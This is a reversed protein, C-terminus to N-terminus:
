RVEDLALARALDASAIKLDIRKNTVAFGARLLALQAGLLDLNGASGAAVRAETVRLNEEAQGVMGEVLTLDARAREFNLICTQVDLVVSNKQKDADAKLKGLTHSQSQTEALTSPLGGLDYSVIVGLSWTGTFLWPDTQFAARQNPDALTYNGTITVTPYLGAQALRASHEGTELSLQSARTEPRRRLAQAILNKEDPNEGFSPEVAEEPGTSLTYLGSTDTSDATLNLSGNNKGMLTILTLYARKQMAVAGGLDIEAQKVRMDATLLDARTATGLTVQKNVQDRNAHLLELNKKLTNVNAAARVCEWYARRVEFILSRKVMELALQKGDAQLAAIAASERIRFGAFVPYQLNVSFTFVNNLSPPFDFSITTGPAFPNDVEMSAPPLESLRQYGASLSLSPFMRYAAADAKAQAALWDWTASSIGPDGALAANVADELSLGQSQAWLGPALCFFGAAALLPLTRKITLGRGAHAAPLSKM